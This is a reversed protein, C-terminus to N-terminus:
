PQLNVEFTGTESWDSWNLDASRVRVKWHWRDGDQIDFQPAQNGQGLFRDYASTHTVKERRVDGAEVLTDEDSDTKSMIEHKLTYIHDSWKYAEDGGIYFKNIFNTLDLKTLDVGEQSDVLDGERWTPDVEDGPDQGEKPQPMVNHKRTHNGWLDYVDGEFEADKSLQWQVEYISDPDSHSIELMIDKTDVEGHPSVIQPAPLVTKGPTVTVEDTMEFGDQLSGYGGVKSAVTASYRKMNVSESGNANFTLINFGFESRSIAFTNYDQVDYLMHADHIPERYGQSTSANVWLHNTDMSQGRSYAHTHGFFHGSIHGTAKSYNETEAVLECSGLSEGTIWLESLCPHHFMSFVYKIDENNQTTNLKDKLWQRQTRMVDRQFNSHDHSIPFSDLGIIRLRGLDISYWTEEYGEFGNTPKEFFHKYIGLNSGDYYDHNGPVTILPVYPTINKMQEFFEHRWHEMVNGTSVVDGAITIASINDACTAENGECAYSIIGKNVVDSLVGITDGNQTDGIAVINLESSDGQEPLTKFAYKPSKSKIKGEDQSNLAVIYYEYVTSPKLDNLVATKTNSISEDILDAEVIIFEESSEKPRAWVQTHEDLAEFRVTMSNSTPMQLYPHIIFDIKGNTTLSITNDEEQCGMLTLVISM